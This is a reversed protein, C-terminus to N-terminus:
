DLKFSSQQVQNMLIKQGLAAKDTLLKGAFLETRVCVCVCVQVDGDDNHLTASAHFPTFDM